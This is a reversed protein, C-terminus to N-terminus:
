PGPPNDYFRDVDLQVTLTEDSSALTHNNITRNLYGTVNHINIYTVTGAGSTYNYTTTGTVVNEDNYLVVTDSNRVITVECTETIADGEADVINITLAAAALVQTSAGTGNRVTPSNGGSLNITVAGGSNNYVVADTTDDAGYGSYTLNTFTYTGTATIYIAHGTGGSIFDLGSWNSTGDADLLVAGTAGATTSQITNNQFTVTGPDIQGCATFTNGTVTHNSTAADNAFSISNGWQAFNCGTITLETIGSGSFNGTVNPGATTITSNRLRFTTTGSISPQRVQLYYKDDSINRNEFVVVVDSDEFLTTGTSAGGFTLPGQLGYIGTSYERIIGHAKLDATSRDENVIESFKGETGSGGGTIVLGDNGIRIIDIAVNIGGGLGKSLTTFDSGFQTIATLNLSAFSGARALTYGATNMASAQSGDLVLCDWDVKVGTGADLHAFVKKNSGAIKFSIRNTGDGLHMANPPSAHDWVSQQAFNNSWVYILTNSVDQTGVVAWMQGTAINLTSVVCGTSEAVLNIDTSLSPTAGDNGWTETTLSDAQAIVTRTDTVTVAM